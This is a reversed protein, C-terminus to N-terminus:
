YYGVQILSRNMFKKSLHEIQMVVIYTGPSVPLGNECYGEWGWTGRKQVTESESLKVIEEGNFNYISLCAVFDTNLTNDTLEYSIQVGNEDSYPNLNITKPFVDLEGLHINVNEDNLQTAFNKFGPSSGGHSSPARIWTESSEEVREQSIDQSLEKITVRDFEVITDEFKAIVLERGNQLSPIPLELIVSESKRNIVWSPCESFALIGSEPFMWHIESLRRFDNPTAGDTTTIVCNYTSARASDPNESGLVSKMAVEIFEGGKVKPNSLLENLYVQSESSYHLPVVWFKNEIIASREARKWAHCQLLVSSSDEHSLLPSSATAHNQGSGYFAWDIAPSWNDSLLTTSDMAYPSHWALRGDLLGFLITNEFIPDVEETFTEEILNTTWNKGNNSAEDNSIRKLAYGGEAKEKDVHWCWSYEVLDLILDGLRIEITGSKEALAVWENTNSSNIKLSQHPTLIPADTIAQSNIELNHLDISHECTNSIKVWEDTGSNADPNTLFGTIKLDGWQPPAVPTWDFLTCSFSSDGSCPRVGDFTIDISENLTLPSSLNATWSSNEWLLNTSVDNMTAVIDCLPDIDQSFSFELVHESLLHAKVHFDHFILSAESTEVEGSFWPNAAFINSSPSWNSALGCGGTYIKSTSRAPISYPQWWTRDYIIQDILTGDYRLLTLSMGNDNLSTVGPLEAQLKPSPAFECSDFQLTSILFREKPALVGDWGNRPIMNIHETLSSTSNAIVSWTGIDVYKDSRNLIEIWEVEPFGISPTADIFLETIVLDRFQASNLPTYVVQIVTDIEFTKIKLAKYVEDSLSTPLTLFSIHPSTNSTTMAANSSVPRSWVLQVVTSDIARHSLLKPKEVAGETTFFSHLGWSFANTNSSTCQVEFGFCRPHWNTESSDSNINFQSIIPIEWGENHAGADLSVRYDQTSMKISLDLDFPQSFDFFPSTIETYGNSFTNSIALPDNSGNEGVAFVLADSPVGGTSDSLGNESLFFRSNNNNSGMLDQRWRMDFRFEEFAEEACGCIRYMGASPADLTWSELGEQEWGSSIQWTVSDSSVPASLFSIVSLLYM